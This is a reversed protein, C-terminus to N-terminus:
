PGARGRRQDDAQCEEAADELRRAVKRWAGAWESADAKDRIAKALWQAQREGMVSAYDHCLERVIRSYGKPTRPRIAHCAAGVLVAYFDPTALTVVDADPPYLDMDGVDDKSM